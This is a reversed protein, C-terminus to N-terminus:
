FYARFIDAFEVSSFYQSAKQWSDTLGPTRRSWPGTRRGLRSLLSEHIGRRYRGPRGTRRTPATRFEPTIGSEDRPNHAREKQSSGTLGVGARAAPEARSLGTSTRAAIIWDKPHRPPGNPPSCDGCGSCPVAMGLVPTGAVSTGKRGIGCDETQRHDAAAALPISPNEGPTTAFWVATRATIVAFFGPRRDVAPNPREFAPRRVRPLDTSLTATPRPLRTDSGAPV